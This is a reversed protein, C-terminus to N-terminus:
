FQGSSVQHQPGPRLKIVAKLTDDSYVHCSGACNKLEAATYKV